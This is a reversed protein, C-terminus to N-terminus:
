ALLHAKKFLRQSCLGLSVFSIGALALYGVTLGHGTVVRGIALLCLAYSLRNGLMLLSNMTARWESAVRHNVIEAIWLMHASRCGQQLIAVTLLTWWDTGSAALIFSLVLVGSNLVMRQNGRLKNGLRAVFPTTLASLFNLAAFLGGFLAPSIGAALWNPQNLWFGVQGVTYWLAGLLFVLRLYHDHSFLRRTYETASVTKCEKSGKDNPEVEKLGLAAITGLLMAVAVMGWTLKISVFWLLGGVVASVAAMSTSIIHLRSQIRTFESERGLKVLSDYLLAVDAGSVLAFGIALLVESLCFVVPSSPLLYVLAGLAAFLCGVVVVRKRGWVDALYGSPVEMVVMTIAFLAQLWLIGEVTLGHQQWFPVLFPVALGLSTPAIKVLQLRLLNSEYGKHKGNYVDM